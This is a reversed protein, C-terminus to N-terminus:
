IIDVAMFVVVVDNLMLAELPSVVVVIFKCRSGNSVCALIWRHVRILLLQLQPVKVIERGPNHYQLSRDKKYYHKLQELNVPSYRLKTFITM